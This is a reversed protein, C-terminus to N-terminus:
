KKGAVESAAGQRAGMKELTAKDVLGSIITHLRLDGEKVSNVNRLNTMTDCRCIAEKCVVGGLAWSM